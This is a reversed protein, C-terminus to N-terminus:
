TFTNGKHRVDDSFWESLGMATGLRSFLVNVSSSFIYELEIKKRM